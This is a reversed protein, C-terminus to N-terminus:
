FKLNPDKILHKAHVLLGRAAPFLIKSDVEKDQNAEVRNGASSFSILQEKESDSLPEDLKNLAVFIELKRSQYDKEQLKGLTWDREIEELRSRLQQPQRAAFMQIVEPTKFAQSVAQQIAIQIQNFHDILTNNGSKWRELQTEFERMQQLTDEKMSTYEAEDLLEKNEELDRLQTLLRNLQEEVRQTLAQTEVTGRSAM